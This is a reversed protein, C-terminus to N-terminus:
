GKKGVRERCSGRGNKYLNNRTVTEPGYTRELRVLANAAVMEGKENKVYIENLSSPDTRYEIDAQAIVRYFKGFRNFDSVFSSGFYVQLTQLLDSINVLDSSCVYSSWDSICM